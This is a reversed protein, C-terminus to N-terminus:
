GSHAPTLPLREVDGSSLEHSSMCFMSLPAYNLSFEDAKLKAQQVVVHAAEQSTLAAVVEELSHKDARCGLVVRRLASSPIHYLLIDGNRADPKETPWLLRVEQEHAWELSKIQASELLMAADVQTLVPREDSYRVPLLRSVISDTQQGRHFCPHQEDFELLMGRHCDAYHAWMLLHKSTRTFCLVGLNSALVSLVAERAAESYAEVAAKRLVDLVDIQHEGLLAAQESSVKSLHKSLFEPTLFEAPCTSEDVKVHPLVDFPDNFDRPSSYRLHWNALYMLGVRATVYKFISM